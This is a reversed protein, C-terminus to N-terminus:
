WGISAFDGVNEAFRCSPRETTLLISLPIRMSRGHPIKVPQAQAVGDRGRREQPAFDTVQQIQDRAGASSPSGEV